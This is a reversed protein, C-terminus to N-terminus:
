FLVVAYLLSWFIVKLRKGGVSWPGASPGQYWYSCSLSLRSWLQMNSSCCNPIEHTCAGRPLAGYARFAELASASILVTHLALEFKMAAKIFGFRAIGWIFVFSSIRVEDEPPLSPCCFWIRHHTSPLQLVHLWAPMPWQSRLIPFNRKGRWGCDGSQLKRGEWM